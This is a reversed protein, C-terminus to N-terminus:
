NRESPQDLADPGGAMEIVTDDSLELTMDGVLEIGAAYIDSTLEGVLYTGPPVVILDFGNDTAWAIAENMRTRTEVPDGSDNSIGWRELELEYRNEHVPPLEASPREGPEWACEGEGPIPTVSGDRTPVDLRPADAVSGDADGTSSCDCAVIGLLCMVWGRM